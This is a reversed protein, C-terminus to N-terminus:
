LRYNSIGPIGSIPYATAFIVPLGKGQTVYHLDIGNIKATHHEVNLANEQWATDAPQSQTNSM